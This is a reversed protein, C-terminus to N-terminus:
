YKNIKNTFIDISINVLNFKDSSILILENDYTM